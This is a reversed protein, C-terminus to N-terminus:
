FPSSMFSECDETKLEKKKKKKLIDWQNRSYTLAELIHVEGLCRKQM